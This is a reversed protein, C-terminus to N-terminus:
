NIQGSIADETIDVVFTVIAFAALIIILGIVGAILLKKAEAVRDENGAATMWRFGGLLIVVVAIIGLFTMLYRVIDVATDRPDANTAELGLQQAYGFGIVNRAGEQAFVVMPTFVIAFVILSLLFKKM